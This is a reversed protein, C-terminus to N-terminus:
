LRRSPRMAHVRHVHRCPMCRRQPGEVPRDDLRVSTGCVTVCHGSPTTTAHHAPTVLHSVGTGASLRWEAGHVSTTSPPM